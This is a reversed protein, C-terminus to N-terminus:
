AAQEGMAKRLRAFRGSAADRSLGMRRGIEIFSLGESVLEMLRDDDEKTWTFHNQHYASM